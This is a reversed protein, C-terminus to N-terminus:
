SIIQVEGIDNYKWLDESIESESLYYYYKTANIFQENTGSFDTPAIYIKKFNEANNEYFIKKLNNCNTFVGNYIVTLSTPIIIYELSLCNYFTRSELSSINQPIKLSTLASCNEFASFGIYQLNDNLKIKQLQTCGEFSNDGIKSINDSLIISKIINNYAFAYKYIEYSQGDIYEPMVINEETGEYGMCIYNNEDNYFVFDNSKIIKSDDTDTCINKARTDSIRINTASKNVIEILKIPLLFPKNLIKTVSSPITLSILSYCGGFANDITNVGEPIYIYRLRHCGAFLYEPIFTASNPLNISIINTCNAFSHPYLSGGIINVTKLSAPVKDSSEIYDDAGFIHSFYTNGSGDSNEGVFPLTIQQASTCGNFAGKEISKVNSGIYIDVLNICNYFANQKIQSVNNSLDIKELSLCNAFANEKIIHNNETLSINKLLTGDLYLDYLCPIHYNELRCWDDVNGEYYLNIKSTDSSIYQENLRIETLCDNLYFNHQSDSKDFNEISYNNRLIVFMNDKIYCNTGYIVNEEQIVDAVDAYEIEWLDYWVIDVPSLSFERDTNSKASVIAKYFSRDRYVSEFIVDCYNKDFGICSKEATFNMVKKTEAESIDTDYQTDCLIETIKNDSFKLRCYLTKETNITNDRFYEICNDEEKDPKGLLSVAEDYSQGIELAFVRETLSNEAKSDNHYEIIVFIAFIIVIIAMFTRNIYKARIEKKDIPLETKKM